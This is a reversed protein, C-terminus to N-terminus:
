CADCTDTKIRIRLTDNTGDGDSDYEELVVDCCIDGGAVHMLDQDTLELVSSLKQM